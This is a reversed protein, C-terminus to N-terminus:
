PLGGERIRNMIAKLDSVHFCASRPLHVRVTTSNPTPDAGRPSKWYGCHRVTLEHETASVWRDPDPPVVVVVLIRPVQFASSRLEDYNKVELDFPLPDEAILAATAKLQVDLRSSRVNGAPDRAMLTLDVGDADVHRNAEQVFFGAAHAIARVYAHSFESKLDNLSMEANGRM